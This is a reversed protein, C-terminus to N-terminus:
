HTQKWYMQVKRKSLVPDSEPLEASDEETAFFDDPKATKEDKSANTDLEASEQNENASSETETAKSKANEDTASAGCGCLFLLLAAFPAILFKKRM